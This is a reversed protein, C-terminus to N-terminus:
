SYSGSHCRGSTSGIERAARRRSGPIGTPEPILLAFFSDVQDSLSRFSAVLVFLMGGLVVYTVGFAVAMEITTAQEGIRGILGAHGVAYTSAFLGCTELWRPQSRASSSLSYERSYDMPRLGVRNLVRCACRSRFPTRLSM